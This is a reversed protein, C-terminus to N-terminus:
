RTNGPFQAHQTEQQVRVARAAGFDCRTTRDALMQPTRRSSPRRRNRCLMFASGENQSPGNHGIPTASRGYPTVTYRSSEVRSCRARAQACPGRSAKPQHAPHRFRTARPAPKKAIVKGFASSNTQWKAPRHPIIHPLLTGAVNRTVSKTWSTRPPRPARQPQCEKRLWRLGGGPAVANM